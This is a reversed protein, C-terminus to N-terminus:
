VIAKKKAKLLAAQGEPSERWATMAEKKTLYLRPIVELGKVAAALKNNYYTSNQYRSGWIGRTTTVTKAQAATIEATAKDRIATFLETLTARWQETKEPTPEGIGCYHMTVNPASKKWYRSYEFWGCSYQHDVWTQDIYDAKLQLLSKLSKDHPLKEREVSTFTVKDERWGLCLVYNGTVENKYVNGATFQSDPLFKKTEEISLNKEQKKVLELYTQSGIPMLRTGTIGGLDHFMFQCAFNGNSDLGGLKIADELDSLSVRGVISDNELLVEAVMEKKIWLFGMFKAKSPVNDFLIKEPKYYTDLRLSDENWHSTKGKASDFEQEASSMATAISGYRTAGFVVGYRYFCETDATEPTQGPQLPLKKLVAKTSVLCVKDPFPLNLKISPM